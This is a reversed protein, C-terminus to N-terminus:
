SGRALPFGITAGVIVLAAGAIAVIGAATEAPESLEEVALGALSLLAGAAILIWWGGGPRQREPATAWAVIVILGLCALRLETSFLGAMVVIAAGVGAILALQLGRLGM